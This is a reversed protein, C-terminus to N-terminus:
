HFSQVHYGYGVFGVDLKADVLTVPATRYGRRTHVLGAASRMGDDRHGERLVVDLTLGGLDRADVEDVQGSPLHRADRRPPETTQTVKLNSM